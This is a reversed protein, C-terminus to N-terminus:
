SNKGNFIGAKRWIYLVSKEVERLSADNIAARAIFIMQCDVRLRDQNLRITERLLRKARNRRIANGVKKSAIIGYKIPRDKVIYIVVHRSLYSKGIAFVNQFNSKKQM